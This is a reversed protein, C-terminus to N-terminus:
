ILEIEKPFIVDVKFSLFVSSIQHSTGLNQHSNGFFIGTISLLVWMAPVHMYGELLGCQLVIDM